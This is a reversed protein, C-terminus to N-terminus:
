AYRSRQPALAAQPGSDPKEPPRRTSTAPWRMPVTPRLTFATATPALGDARGDAGDKGAPGEREEREGVEGGGAGEARVGRGRVESASM